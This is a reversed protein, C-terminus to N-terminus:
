FEIKVTRFGADRFFKTAAKAWDQHLRRRQSPPLQKDYRIELVLQGGEKRYLAKREDKRVAKQEPKAPASRKDDAPEASTPFYEDHLRKLAAPGIPGDSLAEDFAELKDPFQRAVKDALSLLCNSSRIDLDHKKIIGKYKPDASGIRKYNFGTARSIRLEEAAPEVKGGHFQDAYACFAASRDLLPLDERHVNEVFALRLMQADPVDRVVAKVTKLGAAQCARLRREGMVLEFAHQNRGDDAAAPRSISRVVIPQQLGHAKISGALGTISEAPFDRRPQCPNPRISAVPIEVVREAAPLGSASVGLLGEILSRRGTEKTAPM